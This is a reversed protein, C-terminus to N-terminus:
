GHSTLQQRAADSTRCSHVAIGLVGTAGICRGIWGGISGISALSAREMGSPSPQSYSGFHSPNRQMTKRSPSRSSNIERLSRGRPPVEGFQGIRQEGCQGFPADDVTLDDDGVTAAVPEVEVGQQLANM